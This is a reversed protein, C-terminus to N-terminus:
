SVRFNFFSRGKKESYLTTPHIQIYNIDQLAIQHKLAIALADGTIHPYNTSSQFLGAWGVQLLYWQNQM